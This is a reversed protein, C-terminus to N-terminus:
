RIAIKNDGLKEISEDILCNLNTHKGINPISALEHIINLISLVTKFNNEELLQKVFRVFASM